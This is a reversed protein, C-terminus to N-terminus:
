AIKKNGATAALTKTRPQYTTAVARSYENDMVARVDFADNIGSYNSSQHHKQRTTARRKKQLVQQKRLEIRLQKHLTDYQAILAQLSSLHQQYNEYLNQLASLGPQLSQSDATEPLSLQQRVAIVFRRHMASSIATM